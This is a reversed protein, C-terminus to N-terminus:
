GIQKQLFIPEPFSLFQHFFLMVVDRLYRKVGAKGARGIKGLAKFLFVAKKGDIVHFEQM